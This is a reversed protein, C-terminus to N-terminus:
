PYSRTHHDRGVPSCCTLLRAEVSDPLQHMELHTTWLALLDAPWVQQDEREMGLAASARAWRLAEGLWVERWGAGLGEATVHVSDLVPGM